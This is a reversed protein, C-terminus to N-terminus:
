QEDAVQRARQQQARQRARMEAVREMQYDMLRDLAEMRNKAAAMQARMRQERMRVASAFAQRDSASLDEYAERMRAHARAHEQMVLRREERQAEAIADIDLRDAALLDLVRSRAKAIAASSAPSDDSAMAQALRARGEPSLGGFPQQAAVPAALACVLCVALLTRSLM